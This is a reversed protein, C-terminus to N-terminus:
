RDIQVEMNGIAARLFRAASFLRIWQSRARASFRVNGQLVGVNDSRHVRSILPM